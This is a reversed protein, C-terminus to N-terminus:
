SFKRDLIYDVAKQAKGAASLVLRKDNRLQKLWGAIYASQNEIVKEGHGTIATLFSAGIEAPQCRLVPARDLHGRYALLPYDCAQSGM